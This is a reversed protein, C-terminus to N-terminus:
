RFAARTAAIAIKALTDAVKYAIFARVITDATHTVLEKALQTVLEPDVESREVSDENADKGKPTRVLKVQLARNGIM